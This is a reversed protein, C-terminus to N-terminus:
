MVPKANCFTEHLIESGVMKPPIPSIYIDLARACCQSLVVTPHRRFGRKPSLAHRIKFSNRFRNKLRISFVVNQCFSLLPQAAQDFRPPGPLKNHEPVPKPPILYRRHIVGGASVTEVTVCAKFQWRLCGACSVELLGKWCCCKRRHSRRLQRCFRHLFTNAHPTYNETM